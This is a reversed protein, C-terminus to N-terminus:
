TGGDMPNRLCSYQLPNSNGEGSTRGSVPSAPEIEPGPLDEPPPFLLGSWYEQKSFEMTLPVQHAATWRSAFLQVRSLLCVYTHM